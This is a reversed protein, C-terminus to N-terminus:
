RVRAQDLDLPARVDRLELIGGAKKRRHKREELPAAVRGSRMPENDWDCAFPRGFGPCGSPPFLHHFGAASVEQQPGGRNRGGHRECARHCGRLLARDGHRRRRSGKAERAELRLTVRGWTDAHDEVVAGHEIERGRGRSGPARRGEVRAGHQRQDHCAGRRELLHPRERGATSRPHGLSVDRQGGRDWCRCAVDIRDAPVIQLMEGFTLLRMVGVHLIGLM